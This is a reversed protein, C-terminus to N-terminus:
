SEEMHLKTFCLVREWVICIVLNNPAGQLDDGQYRSGGM